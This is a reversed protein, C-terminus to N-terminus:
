KKQTTNIWKNIKYFERLFSTVFHGTEVAVEDFVVAAQQTEPTSIDRAVM